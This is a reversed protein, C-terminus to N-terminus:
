RAGLLSRLLDLDRLDKDRLPSGNRLGPYQEKMAVMGAVSMARAALGAFEVPEEPFSGAPFVWDSWRGEPTATGDPRADFYATSFWTDGWSFETSEAPPQTDQRAAGEAILIRQVEAADRRDVWFEIDGHDRTIRGIRADLGWGGFLWARRAERGLVTTIRAILELQDRTQGNM